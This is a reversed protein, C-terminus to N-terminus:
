LSGFFMADHGLNLISKVKHALERGDKAFLRGGGAFFCVLGSDFRSIRNPGRIIWFVLISVIGLIWIMGQTHTKEWTSM